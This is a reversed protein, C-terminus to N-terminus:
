GFFKNLPYGYCSKISYSSKNMAYTFDIYDCLKKYLRKPTKCTEDFVIRGKESVVVVCNQRRKDGEFHCEFMVSRKSKDNSQYRFYVNTKEILCMDPIDDIILTHLRNIYKRWKSCTNMESETLNIPNKAISLSM